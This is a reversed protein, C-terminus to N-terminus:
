WNRCYKKFVTQNTINVTSQINATMKRKKMIGTFQDSKTSLVDTEDCDNVIM